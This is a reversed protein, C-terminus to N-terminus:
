RLNCIPMQLVSPHDPGHLLRVTVAAGNARTEESVAGGGNYNKQVFTGEIVRGLPAIVLRLRHGRRVRRAVFTFREFDCRQAETTEILRASRLSERYRLRMADTSLRIVNGDSCVEQVTIYLDTDPRDIALWVSLKFFGGIETDREFPASHYVLQREALAWVLKQDNLAGGGSNAEAEVEPGHDERPDYTFQDALEERPPEGLSGSAFVDKADGNSSLFLAQHRSTIEALSDAYRWEETGMMYYTVAKQLLSPKAGSGMTWAYWELHLRDLDICSAPAFVLGGFSLQPKRTGAHDWPGILLYHRPAGAASKHRGYHGLAGPQDDDYSGTITLVPIDLGAYQAETPNYEDWYADVEPHSLWEQYLASPTGAFQDLDRFARGSEHWRRYISSWFAADAFLQRQLTRGSTFNIWQMLYPYFINNRIPFDVGICPSGAPVITALHPPRRAATAWQDYGSYSSGWMAVKGNCYPQQALWEVVDFGDDGEQILARFTGESNGRGRSDVMLFPLGHSAFYVGHEHFWDSVYPTLLLVCPRTGSGQGPLYLTGNLRTGDRLPIRLGWRFEIPLESEVSM